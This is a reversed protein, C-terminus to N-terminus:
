QPLRSRYQLAELVHPEEVMDNQSLDAITRAVSLARFYARASLGLREAVATIRKRATDTVRAHPLTKADIRTSQQGRKLRHEQAAIVRRRVEASQEAVPAHDSLKQHAVAPVEVWLDIRDAIPGSIKRVYRDVVASPCVCSGSGKKGCPCPNMAAVLLIDAPFIESGRARAVSVIRDELPERLSEIVRRDFEPFEDLFLVGRHALTIEGPRPITGGGVIAAHSSTHHPARFPANTLFGRLIGAASHIGNVELIEDFPLPALIGVLARAILTKGSGPPGWLAINHRGAAAIELARKATEQGRVDCLDVSATVEEGMSAIQTFPTQTLPVRSPARTNLHSIVDGLTRAGYVALGEILAAERANEEPVYLENFGAQKALSAIMLIGRVPRLVGNLSLEGVFLRKEPSFLVEGSALLFSLAIPLDFSPGEKKIDAPALSVVIKRNSAKPSTFGSNKIASGVRDRAEEVAKDPLGVLTFAHLGRSLDAEVTIMRPTLGSVQASYVKAFAM